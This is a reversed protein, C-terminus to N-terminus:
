EVHGLLIEQRDPGIIVDTRAVPDNASTVLELAWRVSVLRGSCSPPLNPARLTFAHNGAAAPQAIREIPGVGVDQTGKGETYWFLRLEIWQPATTLDWRMTGQLSEGPAFAAVGNTLVIELSM